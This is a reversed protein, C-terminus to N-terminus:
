RRRRRDVQDPPVQLLQHKDIPAGTKVTQSWDVTAQTDGATASLGTPPNPKKVITVSILDSTRVGSSNIARVAFTYTDRETLGSVTHSATSSDSRDINTWSSGGNQTFQYGTVTRPQSAKDWTLGVQLVGTQAASFNAPKGPAAGAKAPTATVPPSAAGEGARNVARVRFAYQQNNTLDSVLHSTTLAGSGPIDTWAGNAGQQYQYM